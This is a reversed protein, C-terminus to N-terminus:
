FIYLVFQFRLDIFKPTQFRLSYRFRHNTPTDFFIRLALFLTGYGLRTPTSLSRLLYKIRPFFIYVIFFISPLIHRSNFVRPKAVSVLDAMEVYVLSFLSGDFTSVSILGLIFSPVLM